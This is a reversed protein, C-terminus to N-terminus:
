GYVSEMVGIVDTSNSSFVYWAARVLEGWDEYRFQLVYGANYLIIGNGAASMPFPAINNVGTGVCPWIQLTMRGFAPPLLVQNGSNATVTKFSSIRKDM